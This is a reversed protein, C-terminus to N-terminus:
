KGLNAGDRMADALAQPTPMDDMEGNQALMAYSLPHARRENMTARALKNGAEYIEPQSSVHNRSFEAHDIEHALISGSITDSTRALQPSLIVLDRSRIRERNPAWPNGQVYSYKIGGTQRLPVQKASEALYSSIQQIRSDPADYTNQPPLSGFYASADLTRLDEEPLLVLVGVNDSTAEAEPLVLSGDEITVPYSSAILAGLELAHHGYERNIETSELLAAASMRIEEFIETRQELPLTSM